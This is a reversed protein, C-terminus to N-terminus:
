SLSRAQLGEKGKASCTFKSGPLLLRSAAGPAEEGRGTISSTGGQHGKKKECPGGVRQDAQAESGKRGRDCGSAESRLPGNASSVKMKREKQDDRFM